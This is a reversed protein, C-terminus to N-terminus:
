QGVGTVKRRVAKENNNKINKKQEEKFIEDTMGHRRKTPFFVEVNSGMSVDWQQVVAEERKVATCDKMQHSAMTALNKSHFKRIKKGRKKLMKGCRFPWNGWNKRLVSVMYKMM